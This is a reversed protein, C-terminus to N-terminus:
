NVVATEDTGPTGFDHFKRALGVVYASRATETFRKM